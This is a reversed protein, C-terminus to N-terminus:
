EVPVKKDIREADSIIKIHYKAKDNGTKLVGKYNGKFNYRNDLFVTHGTSDAILVLLNASPKAIFNIEIKKNASTCSLQSIQTGAQAKCSIHYIFPMLFCIKKM